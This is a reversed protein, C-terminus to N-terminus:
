RVMQIMASVKVGAAVFPQSGLALAGEFPYDLLHILVLIAAVATAFTVSFSILAGRHDVGALTVFVALVGGFGILLCWLLAPVGSSTQFLRTSRETNAQELFTLLQQRTGLDAMDTPRMQATSQILKALRDAIASDEDRTLSMAAWEHHVVGDIYSRETQLIPLGEAKPLASALVAAGQLASCELQVANAANNYDSWVESFVFALLVAFIVGLQLFVATGIENHRRRLEVHVHHHVFLSVVGALMAAALVIALAVPLSM